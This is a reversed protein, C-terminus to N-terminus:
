FNYVDIKNLATMYSPKFNKNDTPKAEYTPPGQAFTDKVEKHTLAYNFYQVNGLKLFEAGIPANPLMYLNGDNQKLSDNRFAPYSSASESWYPIDNVYFTFRIGNDANEMVSYNDEFVFTLLTWNVPLLSLLNKRSTPEGESNMTVAIENYIDNNTNFRVRIDRFSDGFKIQPCSVWRDAPLRVKLKYQNPNSPDTSYYGVQYQKLDGKHLLILDKYLSDSADEIKIWFQYTFQAGGSRNVSRSIRRYNETFPNVTNYDIEQLLAPGAYGDLLNTSERQKVQFTTTSVLADINLISLTVVYLILILLIAVLIQASILLWPEM